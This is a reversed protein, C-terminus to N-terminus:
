IGDHARKNNIFKIRIPIGFLNFSKRIKNEIQKETDDRIRKFTGHLAFLPPRSNIQVAYKIKTNRDTSLDRISKNLKSTLVKINWKSYIEKVLRHVEKYTHVIPIGLYEKLRFKSIDCKTVMIILARGENFIKSCLRQDRKTFENVANVIYLVVHSMEIASKTDGLIIEDDYTIGATDIYTVGDYNVRIADTTVGNMDYVLLDSGTIKNILTSKGSNMAGVVAVKIDNFEEKISTDSDLKEIIKNHLFKRGLNLDVTDIGGINLPKRSVLITKKNIKRIWSLLSTDNDVVYLVLDVENIKEIVRKSCLIELESNYSIGPSDIIEYKNDIIASRFNRTLGSMPSVLAHKKGALINFITSKGSNPLGVLIVRM